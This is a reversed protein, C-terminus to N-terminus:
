REAVAAALLHRLPAVPERCVLDLSAIQKGILPDAAEGHVVPQGHGIRMHQPERQLGLDDRGTVERQRHGAQHVDLVRDGGVLHDGRAIDKVQRDRGPLQTRM